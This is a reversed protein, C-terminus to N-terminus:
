IDSCRRRCSDFIEFVRLESEDSESHRTKLSFVVVAQLWRTERSWLKFEDSELMSTKFAGGGGSAAMPYRPVWLKFEDSESDRM